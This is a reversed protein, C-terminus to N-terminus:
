ARPQPGEDKVLARLRKVFDPTFDTDKMGHDKKGHEAADKLVEDTTNGHAVYSCDKGAERCSLYKM